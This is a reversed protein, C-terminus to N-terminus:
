SLTHLLWPVVFPTLLSGVLLVMVSFAVDGKLIDTIAPVAMAAPMASILLVAVALDKGLGLWATLVFLLTPIIIMSAIVIYLWKAPHVFEHIVDDLDIKLFSLFM